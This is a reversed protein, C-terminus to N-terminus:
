ILEDEDGVSAPVPEPKKKGKAKPKPAEPAEAAPDFPAPETAEEAPLNGFAERASFFAIIAMEGHTMPGAHAIDKSRKILMFDTELQAPLPEHDPINLMRHFTENETESLPM